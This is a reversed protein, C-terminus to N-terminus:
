RYFVDVYFTKSAAGGTVTVTVVGDILFPTWNNDGASSGTVETRVHRTASRTNVNYSDLAEAITNATVVATTAGNVTGKTYVLKILEGMIYDSSVAANGSGDTTVTIRVKKTLFQVVKNGAM